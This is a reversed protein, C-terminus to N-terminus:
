VTIGKAAMDAQVFNFIATDEDTTTARNYKAFFAIDCSGGFLGNPLDGIWYRRETNIIRARAEATTTTLTNTRDNVSGNVAATTKAMLFRWNSPTALAVSITRATPVGGQDVRYFWSLAPASAGYLASGVTTAGYAAMTGLNGAIVPQNTGNAFTASSRFVAFVTESASEAAQTEMRAVGGANLAARFTAFGSGYTPSGVIVGDPKGPALNVQTRERSTGPFFWAELNASVPPILGRPNSRNNSGAIQFYVTM